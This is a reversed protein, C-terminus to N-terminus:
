KAEIGAAKVVESIQKKQAQRFADLEARSSGVLSLGLATLQEGFQPEKVAKAVEASARSLVAEPTGTPAVVSYWGLTQYGPVVESISPVDPLLASRTPSTVGLARVKGAQVMALVAPLVGYAFHVEKGMTATLAEAIGKYPVHLIDTGTLRTFLVGSLHESAGTGASGYRLPTKKALDILERLSKAPIEPNTVLVFPVTGILSISAFDKELNFKVNPLVETAVLLQSTLMMWTYGDSPARLVLDASIIGAAGPRSDVVVRQGWAGYLREALVRSIIDPGSGPASGIVLRIPKEPYTPQAAHAALVTLALSITIATLLKVTRM